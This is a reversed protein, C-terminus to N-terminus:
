SRLDDLAEPHDFLVDGALDGLVARQPVASVEVFRHDAGGEVPDAHEVAAEAHDVAVCRELAQEARRPHLEEAAVGAGQERGVLAIAQPRVERPQQARAAPAPARLEDAGITYLAVDLDRDLVRAVAAPTIVAERLVNGVLERCAVGLPPALRLERM